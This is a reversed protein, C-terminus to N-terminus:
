GIITSGFLALIMSIVMLISLVFMIKNLLKRKRFM